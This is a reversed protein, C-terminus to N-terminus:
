DAVQWFIGVRLSFVKVHGVSVAGMFSQGVEKWSFRLVTVVLIGLVPGSGDHTRPAPSQM